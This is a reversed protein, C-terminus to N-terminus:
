EEMGEPELDTQERKGSPRKKGVKPEKKTNVLREIEKVEAKKM